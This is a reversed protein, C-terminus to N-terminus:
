FTLGLVGGLERLTGGSSRELVGIATSTDLDDALAEAFEDRAGGPSTDAGRATPNTQAMAGTWPLALAFLAGALGPAMSQKLRRKM